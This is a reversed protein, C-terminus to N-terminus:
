IKDLKDLCFIQSARFTGNGPNLYSTTETIAFNRVNDKAWQIIEEDTMEWIHIESDVDFECEYEDKIRNATRKLMWQYAEEYTNAKVPTYLGNESYSIIIFM